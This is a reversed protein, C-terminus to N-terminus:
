GNAAPVARPLEVRELPKAGRGGLGLAFLGSAAIAAAGAIVYLGTDFAGTRAELGGLAWSGLFGGLNGFSNVFGTTAAAAAGSLLLSPLCWFAPLYAKTGLTAVVFLALTASLHGRSSPVLALAVAAVALPVAAHLRRERTRDSSWGAVLQGVVSVAAPAILLWTLTSMDVAYWRALISPVFLDIGYFATVACLYSLSLTLVKPHKFAQLIRLHRESAAEDDAAIAAELARREDDSL